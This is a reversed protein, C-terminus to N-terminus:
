RRESHTLSRQVAQQARERRADRGAPGGCAVRAALRHAHRLRLCRQRLSAAPAPGRLRNCRSSRPLLCQQFTPSCGATSCRAACARQRRGSRSSTTMTSNLAGDRGLCGARAGQGESFRRTKGITPNSGQTTPARINLTKATRPSAPDGYSGELGTADPIITFGKSSAM